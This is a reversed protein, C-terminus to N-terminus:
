ENGIWEIKLVQWGIIKEIGVEEGIQPRFGNIYEPSLVWCEAFQCGNMTPLKDADLELAPREASPGVDAGLIQRAASLTNQHGWFSVIPRSQLLAKLTDIDNPSILVPRRILSLPFTSGILIPSTIATM